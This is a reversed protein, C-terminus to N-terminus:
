PFGASVIHFLRAFAHIHSRRESGNWKYLDLDMRGAPSAIEKCSPKFELLMVEKFYPSPRLSTGKKM